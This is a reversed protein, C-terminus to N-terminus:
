SKALNECGKIDLKGSALIPIEPVDLIKKPIWLAPLGEDLLKARLQAPGVDPDTSLLVLAEGKAEDPVGVVAIKREDDAFEMVKNIATEVTEHPVMEGGIKSFRSLRGEIYLFGDEDVRGIDGTMFWKGQKVEATKEPQALYEEFINAGRLWIMGAQQIPLPEHTDPDTIRVAVGPIFLGVSGQRHNPLVPSKDGAHEPQKDPLNVNTVPSTETLGYGELVPKGFRDNFSDAVKKPLKEAGTIVMKVSRLQEKKARRLYGRLFTPTALLLSVSYKEILEALKVTDLPSPYTIM